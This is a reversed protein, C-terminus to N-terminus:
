VGFPNLLRGLEANSVYVESRGTNVFNSEISLVGLNVHRVADSKAQGQRKM